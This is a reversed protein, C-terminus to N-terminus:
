KQFFEGSVYIHPFICLLNCRCHLPTSIVVGVSYDIEDDM